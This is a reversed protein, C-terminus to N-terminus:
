FLNMQGGSSKRAKPKKDVPTSPAAESRLATAPQLPETLPEVLRADDNVVRNVRDSVPVCEFFSEPVPRLPKMADAKDGTATNLWSDFDEPLIIAPMRDHIASLTANAPMTVLAATDIESGDAGMWSEWLGAFAIAGGHTPRMFYPQKVPGTRKWEYFGSAPVLCRRHRFAGRFAPKDALTEARANLLLPLDKPDKAWSPILGWRVLKFHREGHENAVIAIPQTPAINWRPPFNPQDQYRFLRRIEEPTATLTYRGCM